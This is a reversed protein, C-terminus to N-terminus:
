WEEEYDIHTPYATVALHVITDSISAESDVTQKKASSKASSVDESRPKLAHVQHNEAANSWALIFILV